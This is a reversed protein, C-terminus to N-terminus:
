SIMASVTASNNSENVETVEGLPDVTMSFRFAGPRPPVGDVAVSVSEGGQLPRTMTCIVTTPSIVSCQLSEHRAGVKVQTFRDPFVVRLRVPQAASSGTNKVGATVAVVGNGYQFPKTLEPVLDPAFTPPKGPNLPGAQAELPALVTAALGLSLAAIALAKTTLRPLQATIQRPTM